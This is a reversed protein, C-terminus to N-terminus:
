LIFAICSLNLESSFPATMVVIKGVLDLDFM